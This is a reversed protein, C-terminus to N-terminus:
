LLQSLISTGITNDPMSFGFNDLITAGITAFNNQDELQKSEKFRKSYILLRITNGILVFSIATLALALVLLVFGIKQMNDQVLEMMDKRYFLDSVSTYSELQKEIVGLSDPNAYESNLKVEISAHLPNMGQFVEPSEGLTEELERAAM